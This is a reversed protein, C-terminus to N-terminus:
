GDQRVVSGDGDLVGLEVPAELSLELVQAPGLGLEELRLLDGRHALKQRTDRVLEVIRERHDHAPRLEECPLNLLVETPAETSFSIAAASRHARITLVEQGQRALVLRLPAENVQVGDHALRDLKQGIGQPGVADLQPQVKGGVEGRDPGIGMLEVLDEHIEHRIGMVGHPAHRRRAPERDRRGDIAAALPDHELDASLPDPSVASIRALIKSGKKM